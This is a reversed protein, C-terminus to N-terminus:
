QLRVRIDTEVDMDAPTGDIIGPVASGRQLTAQVWTDIEPDGSSRVVHVSMVRGDAAVRARVRVPQPQTKPVGPSGTRIEFRTRVEAPCYESQLVRVQPADGLSVRLRVTGPDVEQPRLHSAVLSGFADVQSRPLWYSLPRLSEVRGGAGLTLSYVGYPITDGTIPNERAFATIAAILSASDALSAVAPLRRPERMPRCGRRPSPADARRDAVEDVPNTHQASAAQGLAALIALAAATHRIPM